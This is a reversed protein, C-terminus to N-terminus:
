NPAKNASQGLILVLDPQDTTKGTALSRAIDQKLWDPLDFSVNAGTKDKLQKLAETKQGFTLDYIVSAEFDQRSSNDLGVIKFGLKELDVATKSALGNIWTGNLIEIRANEAKVKAETAAPANEFIHTFLYQIESFNGTRPVLLYAGDLGTSDVLLGEPANSLVKNSIHDSPTDKVLSWFRLIEWLKINTQAHASIDQFISAILRPNFLTEKSLVQTKVAEIVKQQRAARAFDTGEAGLAHRSRAYKLAFDGDMAQCGAEVRLHEFRADYNPNDEQGDIPYAYDDFTNDVCVQVGGLQNILEKFGDFDIKIYYDIPANLLEGITQSAAQGGSGPQASEALANVSNIKHWGANEIPISLDRPISLIAAQGSQTDYSLVMITDTLEAGDHGKGGIGLFLLNIRGRDEGKLPSVSGEALNKLQSIIPIRNVWSFKDDKSVRAQIYFAVFLVALFILLYVFIKFLRRLLHKFFHKKEPLEIQHNPAPNYIDNNLDNMVAAATKPELFAFRAM